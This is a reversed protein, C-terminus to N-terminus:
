SPAVAPMFPSVSHVIHKRQGDYRPMVNLPPTAPQSTRAGVPDAVLTLAEADDWATWRRTGGAVILRDVQPRREM